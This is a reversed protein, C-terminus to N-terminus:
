HIRSSTQGGCGNPTPGSRAGANVMSLLFASAPIGWRPLHTVLAKLAKGNTFKWTRPLTLVSWYGLEQILAMNPRSAYAADAVVAEEQCRIPPWFDHLMQRCLANETRYNAEDKRRLLAFDVPIRYVGWQAMLIVIRFGFVYPHLHSLRTNQAVPHKTGWQGKLTSDSIAHLIGDEPPPHVLRCLKSPM